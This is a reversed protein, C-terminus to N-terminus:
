VNLHFDHHSKPDAKSSPAYSENATFLNPLHNSNSPLKTEATSTSSSIPNETTEQLCFDDSLEQRMEKVDMLFTLIDDLIEGSDGEFDGGDKAMGKSLDKREL